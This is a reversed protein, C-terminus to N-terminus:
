IEMKKAPSGFVKTEPKINSVVFSAAGVMAGDGVKKHPSISSRTLIRVDSGVEVFGGLFTYASLHCNDGVKVDHGLDSFSQISVFDGIKVDCSIKAHSSIICGVGITSNMGISARPHVLSIFEGGKDLIIKSYIKKYMPDGLACIFVDDEQPVYAEVSSIIKPYNAYGDLADAKDDLFGKIIFEKGFNDLETALQYVERGYGRAGIIILNKM